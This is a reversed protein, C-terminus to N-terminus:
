RCRILVPVTFLAGVEVPRVDIGQAKLLPLLRPRRVLTRTSARDSWAAVIAKVM